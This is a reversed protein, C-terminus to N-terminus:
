AFTTILSVNDVFWMEIKSLTLDVNTLNRKVYKLYAWEGIEFGFDSFWVIYNHM